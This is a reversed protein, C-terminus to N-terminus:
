SEATIWTKIVQYLTHVQDTDMSADAPLYPLQILIRGRQQWDFGTPDHQSLWALWQNGTLGACSHRGYRQMAIRRILIALQEVQVRTPLPSPPITQWEILADKRWDKQCKSVTHRYYWIWLGLIVLLFSVLLLWWGPALPWWSIADLSHIDTLQATPM